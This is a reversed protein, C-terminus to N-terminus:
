RLEVVMYNGTRFLVREPPPSELVFPDPAAARRLRKIEDRYPIFYSAGSRDFRRRDVLIVDVGYRDALADVQSWETALLAAFTSMLRERMIAHYGVMYPISTEESALVSRRTRLPVDSAVAPHAAILTDAPLGSLFAYTLELEVDPTQDLQRSIKFGVEISFGLTVLAAIAVIVRPYRGPAALRTRSIRELVRPLAGALWMTVFVPLATSVYRNPLYLAFLVAHALAFAALASLGLASAEATLAGPLLTVSIVLLAVLVGAGEFSMGMGARRNEVVLELPNEEFFRNRGGKQFEESAMAEARTIRPGLESSMSSQQMAILIALAIGGLAIMPLGGKGISRERWWRPLLVAASFLGLNVVVPPYSLVALLFTIGLLIQRRSVLAYAGLMLLPLAMSRPLFAPIHDRQLNALAFFAMAAVGALVSGNAVRRGLLFALGACLLGLVVPISDAILQVEAVPALARYVLQHVPPAFTRRSYFDFIVDDPFLESDDFQATWWVHQDLDREYIDARAIKPVTDRAVSALCMIAAFLLLWRHRPEGNLPSGTLPSENLLSGKMDVTSDIEREVM